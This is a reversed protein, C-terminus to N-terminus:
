RMIAPLLIALVILAVLLAFFVSVIRSGRYRIHPTAAVVAAYDHSLVVRGKASLVLWLIYANIITGVPFALLGLVSLVVVPARVWPRLARLGRGTAVLIALVVVSVLLYGLAAGLSDIDGAILGSVLGIALLVASLYYLAGIARVSAEHTIHANRKAEAEPDAVPDAVEARPAAYPNHTATM